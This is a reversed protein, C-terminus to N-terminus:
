TEHNYYPMLMLYTGVWIIGSIFLVAVLFSVPVSQPWVEVFIVLVVNCCLFVVDAHGHAKASPNASLPNSDFVLFAFLFALALLAATLFATIIVQAIHGGAYCKVGSGAWFASLTDQLLSRPFGRFTSTCAPSLSVCTRIHGKWRLLIWEIVPLVSPHLTYDVGPWGLGPTGTTAVVCAM